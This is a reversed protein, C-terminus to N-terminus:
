GLSTIRQRITCGLKLSWTGVRCCCTELDGRTLLEVAQGLHLMLKTKDINKSLSQSTGEVISKLGGSRALQDETEESSQEFFLTALESLAKSAAEEVPTKDSDPEEIPEELSSCPARHFLQLDGKPSTPKPLRFM